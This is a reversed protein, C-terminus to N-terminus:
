ACPPIKNVSQFILKMEDSGCIKKALHILEGQNKPKRSRVEKFLLDTFKQTNPGYVFKNKNSIEYM